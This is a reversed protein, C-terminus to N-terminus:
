VCLLVFESSYYNGGYYRLYFSYGADIEDIMRACKWIDENNHYISIALKPHDTQIHKRCGLIAKQEGGEIDMKILTVPESIDDDITVVPVAVTGTDSLKHMSDSPENETVYMIGNRDGAGKQRLEINPYEGLNKKIQEILQPVIEYCYFRKYGSYVSLYNKVTDGTYSGLDVVVDDPGCKIIDLDFYHPFTRDIIPSLSAMSFTLWNEVIGFLTKKSRYDCLRGYLWRLDSHHEKIVKSRNEILEYENKDPDIQGWYAYTNYCYLIGKYGQENYSRIYALNRKMCNQINDLSADKVYDIYETFKRDVMYDSAKLNNQDTM